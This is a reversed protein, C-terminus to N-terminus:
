FAFEPRREFGPLAPASADFLPWKTTEAGVREYRMARSVGGNREITVLAGGPALQSLLSPPMVEVAGDVLIAGYPGGAPYGEVLAAQVVTVNQAGVTDLNGRALEVLARDEELAVVSGVLPALIAVSYGSGCGIVMADIDRGRPLAQILRAQRVPDMMRRDSAPLMRIEADAYAFPRAESEVFIERPVSLFANLVARDTVESTRIQNDVMRQRLTSFDTM